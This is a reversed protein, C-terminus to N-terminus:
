AAKLMIIRKLSRWTRMMLPSNFYFDTVALRFNRRSLFTPLFSEFIFKDNQLVISMHRDGQHIIYAREGTNSLLYGKKDYRLKTPDQTLGVTMILGDGNDMRVTPELKNRHLLANHPAQDVCDFSDKLNFMELLMAKLYRMINYTSGITTGACSVRDSRLSDLVHADYGLLLWKENYQCGGISHNEMAVYLSDSTLMSFPERQFVVDRIDTLLVNAFKSKNKLLYDYYLFHRYNFLCIPSPLLEFNDVHPNTIFPFATDFLIVEVGKEALKQMYNMNSSPGAFICIHGEYGTKSLSVFFRDLDPKLYNYNIICLILNIM